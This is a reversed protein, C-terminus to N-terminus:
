MIEILARRRMEDVLTLIDALAVERTVDYREVLVAAIENLAVGAELRRWVEAGIEDLGFYEGVGFDLLVMEEGFPRAYVRPSPRVKTDPTLAANASDPPMPTM